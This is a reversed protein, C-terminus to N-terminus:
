PRIAMDLMAIGIVIAGWHLPAIFALLYLNILGTRAEPDKERKYTIGLFVHFGVEFLLIVSGMILEFLNDM